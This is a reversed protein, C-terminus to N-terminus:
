TSTYKIGTYRFLGSQSAALTGGLSHSLFLGWFKPMKGGFLSAVSFPQIYYVLSATAVQTECSGALRLSHLVQSHALTEASDTGDLVDIPTTALSVDSGWVRLHIRDGIAPTTAGGTIGKVDVIADVYNNSTNDIQTSERGALFTDDHALSSIDFTINTNSSDTQTIITAM